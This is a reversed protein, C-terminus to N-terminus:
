FAIGPRLVLQFFALLLCLALAPAILLPKSGAHKPESPRAAIAGAMVWGAGIANAVLPALVVEIMERPIRFPIILVVALLAPIVISLALGSSGEGRPSVALPYLRALTRGVGWLALIAAALIVFRAVSGVNLYAFARGVDNGPVLAGIVVQSLSQFFGQFAMWFLFLARTPSANRAHVLAFLFVVGSVLTAVAGTGQLLEAIRNDGRWAHDNHYLIPELGPTLAKPIVLWIEQWFFTLSYCLACMLTASLATRISWEAGHRSWILGAALPLLAIALLPWLEIM